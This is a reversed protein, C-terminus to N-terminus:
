EEEFTEYYSIDLVQYDSALEEVWEQQEPVERDGINLRQYQSISILNLSVILLVAAVGFAFGFEMSEKPEFQMKNRYELKAVLRSYFFPDTQAREIGDLSQMTKEVERNTQKKTSM